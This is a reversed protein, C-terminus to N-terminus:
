AKVLAKSFFESLHRGNVAILDSWLHHFYRAKFDELFERYVEKGRPLSKIVGSVAQHGNSLNIVHPSEFLAMAEAVSVKPIGTYPTDFVVFDYELLYDLSRWDLSFEVYAYKVLELKTGLGVLADYEGGQLDLKLLTIEEDVIDELRIVDVEFTQGTKPATFGETPVLYGESSYGNMAAWGAQTGDVVRKVYFTGAGSFSGLASKFFRAGPNTGITREFHPINGPFPEFAWVRCRGNALLIKTVHGAAAGGDICLGGVRKAVDYIEDGSHKLFLSGCHVNSFRNM